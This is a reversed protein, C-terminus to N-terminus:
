RSSTRRSASSSAPSTVPVSRRRRTTRSAHPWARDAGIREALRVIEPLLDDGAIRGELHPFVLGRMGGVDIRGLIPPVRYRETLPDRLDYWRDLDAVEPSLKVHRSTVGDTVTFNANAFNGPNPVHDARLEGDLAFRGRKRRFEELLERALQHIDIMGDLYGM